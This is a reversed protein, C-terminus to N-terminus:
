NEWFACRTTPARRPRIARRGAITAVSSISERFKKWGVSLGRGLPILKRRMGAAAISRAAIDGLTMEEPGGALLIKGDEEGTELCHAILAVLDEVAIPQMAAHACPLALIPTWKALRAFLSTLSDGAGFVVSPRIIVARTPAANQAIQEAKAKSRLYESNASAAANLASVQVFRPVKKKRAATACCGRLNAICGCLSAARQRTFFAACILRRM